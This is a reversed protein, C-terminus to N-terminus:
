YDDKGITYRCKPYNSCGYFEGYKGKRLVLRGGCKPCIGNDLKNDIEDLRSNIEKMHEQHVEKDNTKLALLLQSIKTVEDPTLLIDKFSCIKDFLEDDYVVNKGADFQLKEDGAFVVINHLSNEPKGLFSELAKIHGYNQHIPNMFKLKWGYSYKTWERGNISGYIHGRMNKTEIVFIGYISLVVHDIQTLGRDGKVVLDNFVFYRDKPLRNLIKHVRHEGLNGRLKPILFLDIAFLLIFLIIIVIWIIHM